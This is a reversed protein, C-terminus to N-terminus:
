ERIEEGGIALWLQMTSNLYNNQIDSLQNEVTLLNNQADLWTEIPQAGALYQSKALKLRQQSLALSILTNERQQSWKQRQTLSKEVDSLASYVKQQFTSAATKVDLKSRAITLQVKNWEVFPLVVSSGIVRGPESFWQSFVSSGASLVASLSVTPYFNLAAVDSGALAARLESEASQVDPRRRIVEVPLSMKLEITQTLDLGDREPLRMSPPRNFLIALSNRIEERQQFLDKLNNEQELVSQTAQLVDLQSVAGATFRSTTVVKTEEAIALSRQSNDIKQNIGAIQWYYQATTGILTLATNQRELATAEAQWASQERMRALKGWLDLEYSLSVSSSYGEVSNTHHRINKTNDASGSVSVDPTLNTDSLNSDLRAQQLRFGAIALDNNRTLVDDIAHTLQPDGFVTWWHGSSALWASGTEQTSWQMPLTLEPRKYDAKVLSGCATLALAIFTVQLIRM